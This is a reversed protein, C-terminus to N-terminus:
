EQHRSNWVFPHPTATLGASGACLSFGLQSPGPGDQEYQSGGSSPRPTSGGPSPQAHRVCGCQWWVCGRGRWWRLHRNGPPSRGKSHSPGPLLSPVHCHMHPKGPRPWATRSFVSIYVLPTPSGGGWGGHGIQMYSSGSGSRCGLARACKRAAGRRRSCPLNESAGVHRRIICVSNSTRHM